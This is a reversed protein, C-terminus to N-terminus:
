AAADRPEQRAPLPDPLATSLRPPFATPSLRVVVLAVGALVAALLPLAGLWGARVFREGLLSGGGIGIQFAVVYVASAADAARPAVRLIAAQLIVPTATMAGGWALVAVVTPVTGLVPVLLALAVVMVAILLSLLGGPRRDVWRGIFWNGILGAVGFGLLLASLGAGELGADRRVLPALYTYAAFLGIMLVATTLCVAAVGRNRLVGVAERMTGALGRAGGAFGMDADGVDGAGARGAGVAGASGGREADLKPLLAFIAAVCVAGLVALVALVVRWGLWQGLATGVPVGLVIALSNGLFVLAIARGGQSPPVLRAAVPAITAWFVGHALACLLRSVILVGFTPAVAAALQSVAFAAVTLAILGRRPFRMTLATLPISTLGAVAAYSTVLLGVAAEDVSLGDAIEPLLGIPITEATVYVFTSAGLAALAARHNM